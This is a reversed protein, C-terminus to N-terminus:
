ATLHIFELVDTLITFCAARLARGGVSADVFRAFVTLVM